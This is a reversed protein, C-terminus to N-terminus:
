GSKNITVSRTLIKGAKFAISILANACFLPIRDLFGLFKTALEVLVALETEQNVFYTVQM